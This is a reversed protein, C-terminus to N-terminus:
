KKLHALNEGAYMHGVNDLAVVKGKPLLNPGVGGVNDSALGEQKTVPIEIVYPKGSNLARQLAGALDGTKRISEGEAGFAKAVAVWDPNKFQTWNEQNFQYNMLTYNAGYSDNTFVMMILPLNHEVAVRLENSHYYFAGDGTGLFVRSNPEALQAGIAMPVGCGLVGEAFSSVLRRPKHMVVGGMMPLTHNGIDTVFIDEPRIVKRVEAMVRWMSAPMEDRRGQEEVWAFWSNRFEGAQRVNERDQYPMAKFGATSPVVETLQEIFAKADAVISLHPYYFSGLVARDADVHVFKPLKTIYGQAIGWDALRSGIVLAFDAAGVMENASRWGCFGASGMALPHVEPIVGQATSTTVVPVGALEALKLLAAGANSRAVGGGAIIVPNKAALLQKATERVDDPTATMVGHAAKGGRPVVGAEEIMDATLDFPIDVYAPGGPTGDAIRFAEAVAEGVKDLREVRQTSLAIPNFMQWPVQQCGERRGNLRSDSNLGIHVAPIRGSRAEMMGAHTLLNGVTHWLGVAAPADKVYNYGNVMHSGALETTPNAVKKALSSKSVANAIVHTSHGIFGFIQEAGCEELTEIILDAGRKNAM